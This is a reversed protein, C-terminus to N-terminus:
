MHKINPTCTVKADLFEILEPSCNYDHALQIINKGLRDNGKLLTLDNEVLFQVMKLQDSYTAHFSTNWGFNNVVNLKLETQDLLKTDNSDIFSKATNIHVM